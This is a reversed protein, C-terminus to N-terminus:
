ATRREMAARRLLRQATAIVEGVTTTEKDALAVIEEEVVSSQSSEKQESGMVEELDLVVEVLDFTRSEANPNLAALLQTDDFDVPKSKRTTKTTRRLAETITKQILADQDLVTEPQGKLPNGEADILLERETM